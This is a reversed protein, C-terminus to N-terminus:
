MIFLLILYSWSPFVSIAYAFILWISKSLLLRLDAPKKELRYRKGCIRLQNVVAALFLMVGVIGCTFLIDLYTKHPAAGITEFPEGRLLYTNVCFGGFVQRLLDMSRFYDFYRSQLMTRGSTAGSLNGKLISDIIEVLRLRYVGFLGNGAGESVLFAITFILLIGGTLILLFRKMGTLSRSALVYLTLISLSCALATMSGTLSITGFMITCLVIKQWLLLKQQTLSFAFGVCLFFAMYNPDEQTGSYRGLFDLTGGSVSRSDYSM